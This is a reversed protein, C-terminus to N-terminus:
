VRQGAVVLQPFLTDCIPLGIQCDYQSVDIAHNSCTHMNVRPVYDVHHVCKERIESIKANRLDVWYTIQEYLKNISETVFNFLFCLSEPQIFNNCILILKGLASGDFTGLAIVNEFLAIYILAYQRHLDGLGQLIIVLNDKHWKAQSYGTMWHSFVAELKGFIGGQYRNSLILFGILSHKFLDGIQLVFFVNKEFHFAVGDNFIKVM